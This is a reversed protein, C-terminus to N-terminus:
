AQNWWEDETKKDYLDYMNLVIDIDKKDLWYLNYSIEIRLYDVDMVYFSLTVDGDEVIVEDDIIDLPIFNDHETPEEIRKLEDTEYEKIKM